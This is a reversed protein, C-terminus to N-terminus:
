KRRADFRRAATCSCSCSCTGHPHPATRASLCVSSPHYVTPYPHPHSSPQFGRFPQRHTNTRPHPIRFSELLHPSLTLSSSPICVTSQRNNSSILHHTTLAEEMIHYSPPTHVTLAARQTVIPRFAGRREQPMGPRHSALTGLVHQYSSHATIPRAHNLPWAM